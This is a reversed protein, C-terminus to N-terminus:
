EKAFALATPAGILVVRQGSVAIPTFYQSYTGCIKSHGDVSSMVPPKPAVLGEAPQGILEGLCVPQLLKARCDSRTLRPTRNSAGHSGGFSRSIASHTLTSREPGAM